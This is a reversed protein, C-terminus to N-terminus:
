GRKSSIRCPSKSSLSGGSGVLATRRPEWSSSALEFINSAGATRTSSSRIDRQHPGRLMPPLHHQHYGFVWPPLGVLLSSGAHGPLRQGESSDMTAPILWQRGVASSTTGSGRGSSKCTLVEETRRSRCKPPRRRKDKRIGTHGSENDSVACGALEMALRSSSYGTGERLLVGHCPFACQTGARKMTAQGLPCRSSKGHCSQTWPSYVGHEPHKLRDPDVPLIVNWTTQATAVFLLPHTARKHSPGSPHEPRRGQSWGLSWSVHPSVCRVM